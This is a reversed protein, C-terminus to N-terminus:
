GFRKMEGATPAQTVRARRSSARDALTPAYFEGPPIKVAIRDLNRDCYRGTALGEPAATATV